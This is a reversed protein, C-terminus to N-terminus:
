LLMRLAVPIAPHMGPTHSSVGADAGSTPRDSSGVSYGTRARVTLKSDRATVELPRWGPRSSAEFALVYQHRLEDLIQRAAVSAHAPASATFMEGGTSRALDRLGSVDFAPNSDTRPDDIPAMVAIIYVPVDIRSAIAAVETTTSRSRTDIGDTLVVLASRQPLKGGMRGTDAIYGAAEAVADYLSTQGFPPNLRDLAGTLAAADSTFDTVRDLRTDFSFVAAADQGRMASFLQLATDRADVAKRGVRMSGSADVLLGLKVPGDTETRFDLIRRPEGAEAIAFDNQDLGRVFRGRRDRVVANVSVIEVSSKFKPAPDQEARVAYAPMVVSAVAAAPILFWSAKM